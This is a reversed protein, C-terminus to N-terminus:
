DLRLVSTGQSDVSFTLGTAAGINSVLELTGGSASVVGGAGSLVGTVKGEGTLVGSAGGFVISTATISAKGVMKVTGAKISLTDTAGTGKGIINLSGTTAISLVPLTYTADNITLSDISASATSLTATYNGAIAITVDANAGPAGGIWRGPTIWNGSTANKWAITAV